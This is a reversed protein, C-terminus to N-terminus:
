APHISRKITRITLSRDQKLAPPTIYTSHATVEDPLCLDSLSIWTCVAPTLVQRPSDTRCRWISQGQERDYKVDRIYKGMYEELVDEM